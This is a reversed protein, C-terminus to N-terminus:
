RFSCLSTDSVWNCEFRPFDRKGMVSIATVWDNQLKACLVAADSGHETCFKLVKSYSRHIYHFFSIERPKLKLLLIHVQNAPVEPSNGYLM